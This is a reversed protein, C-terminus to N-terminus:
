TAEAGILIKRRGLLYYAFYGVINFFTFALIWGVNLRKHHYANITAWIAFLVMYLAIGVFLAIWMSKNVDRVVLKVYWKANGSGYNRFEAFMWTPASVTREYEYYPNARKAYDFLHDFNTAQEEYDKVRYIKVIPVHDTDDVRRMIEKKDEESITDKDYLISTIKWALTDNESANKEEIYWVFGFVVFGLGLCAVALYLVWKSFLNQPQFLQELDPRMEHEGGFREIAIEIADEEEKGEEILEYVAEILHSKMEAKLEQIEENKGDMDEYVTDVFVDIQKMM